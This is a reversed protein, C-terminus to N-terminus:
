VLAADKPRGPLASRGQRAFLRSLGDNLPRLLTRFDKQFLTNIVSLTEKVDNQGTLITRAIKL